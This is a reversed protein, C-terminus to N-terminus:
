KNLIKSIVDDVNENESVNISNKLMEIVDDKTVKYHNNIKIAKLSNNKIKRRITEVGCNLMDAVEKVGYYM